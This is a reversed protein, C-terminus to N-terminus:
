EITRVVRFGTAGSGVGSLGVRLDLSRSASRVGDTYTIINGGRVVAVDWTGSEDGSVFPDVQDETSYPALGDNVLEWVNGSMDYLGWANPDLLGVTHVRDDANGCYWSQQGLAEGNDLVYPLDCSRQGLLLDLAGGSPYSDVGGARAAYEWEAETPLRYGDCTYPDVELNCIMQEVYHGTYGHEGVGCTYCPTRGDLTSLANLFCAASWWPATVPCHKCAVPVGTYTGQRFPVAGVLAVFQGLTVETAGIVFGRTLTVTHQPVDAYAYHASSDYAGDGPWGDIAGVEDEASGMLFTGPEIEVLNLDGLLDVTATSVPECSTLPAIPVDDWPVATDVPGSGTDIVEATEEPSLVKDDESRCAGSLLALYFLAHKM